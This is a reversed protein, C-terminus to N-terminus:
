HYETGGQRLLYETSLSKLIKRGISPHFQEITTKVVIGERMQHVGNLAALISPGDTHRNVLEPSYPGAYLVPVTPLNRESCFEQFEEFSVYEEGRKLDFFSIDIGDKKGYTLDQIGAGIIEGYLTYGPPLIMNLRYRKAIEWYPNNPYYVPNDGVLHVNRSGVCFEFEGMRKRVFPVHEFLWKRIQNRFGVGWYRPAMSYRANTGHLKESVVVVDNEDFVVPYHKINEPDCYRTFNPNPRNKTAKAMNPTGQYSPAPPEWKHINLIEAVNQGERFNNYGPPITLLLGQSIIKRLKVTKVRSGNKLYDIKYQEIMWDPLVADIPVYIALDGAKVNNEKVICNWGKVQTCFLTDANPHKILEGVRVVEVLLTSM